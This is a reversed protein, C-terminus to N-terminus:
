FLAMFNADLNFENFLIDKCSSINGNPNLETDVGNINKSIYGKTTQRNGNNDVGHIYRIIYRIGNNLVCLNKRAEVGPIFFDNTESFVSLANYLTSKGSGNLGKILVKNTKCTSFDIRINNLGLGNYIGIYNTLEIWTIKM